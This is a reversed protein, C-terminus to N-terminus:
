GGVILHEQHRAHHLRALMAGGGINGDFEAGGVGAPNDARCGNDHNHHTPREPKGVNDHHFVNGKAHDEGQKEVGGDDSHHQDRCDHVQQLVVIPPRGWPHLGRGPRQPVSNGPVLALALTPTSPLRPPRLPCGLRVLRLRRLRGLWSLRGPWHASRSCINGM